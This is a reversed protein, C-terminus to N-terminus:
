DTKPRFPEGFTVFDRGGLHLLIKRKWTKEFGEAYADVVEAIYIAHEGAFVREKM